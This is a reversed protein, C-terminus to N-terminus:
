EPAVAVDPAKGNPPEEAPAVVVPAPPPAIPAGPPLKAGYRNLIERAEDATIVVDVSLYIKQLAVTLEELTLSGGERTGEDPTSAAAGNGDVTGPPQLQVSFLNTHQLNSLDGSDVAKVVSQAEFGSDILSRVTGARTALITAADAQDEQLFPIDRDDYWLRSDTPTPIISELSGAFNRWTPRAWEDAFARRAQGYNSYTAAQLGESLGVLVPPVGAAAAIRTEGAGQVQKFDMQRMNAGIVDADAGGGLFLTSYANAVGEHGARFLDVWEKFREPSLNPDAKVKMNPTAANSFFQLKHSTAASDGQIERLIPTLWSMGRWPALPDPMPAFHAVQNALL